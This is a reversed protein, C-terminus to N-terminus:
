LKVLQFGQVQQGKHALLELLVQPEKIERRERREKRERRERHALLVLLSLFLLAEM